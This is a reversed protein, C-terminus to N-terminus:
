TSVGPARPRVVFDPIARVEVTWSTVEGTEVDRIDVDVSGPWEAYRSCYMDVWARAATEASHATIPYCFVEDRRGDYVKM